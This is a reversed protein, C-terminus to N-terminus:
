ISTHRFMSILTTASSRSLVTAAWVWFKCEKTGAAATISRAQSGASVPLHRRRHHGPSVVASGEGAGQVSRLHLPRRPTWGLSYRCGTLVNVDHQRVCPYRCCGPRDLVAVKMPPRPLVKLLSASVWPPVSPGQHRLGERGTGHHYRRLDTPMPQATTTPVSRLQHGAKANIKAM